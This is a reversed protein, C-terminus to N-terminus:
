YMMQQQIYAPPEWGPTWPGMPTWSWKEPPGRCFKFKLFFQVIKVIKLM